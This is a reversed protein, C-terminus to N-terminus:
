RMVSDIKANNLGQLTATFSKIASIINDELPDFSDSDPVMDHMDMWEINERVSEVLDISPNFSPVASWFKSGDFVQSHGFNDILRYYRHPAVALLIDQPVHVLNAQVDLASAAIRYWDDWTRHNPHVLNYTGGIMGPKSLLGVFGIAADRSSLFQFYNLGDGVSIIPKGKRLRDIWEGDCRVQRLLPMGPGFTYSPKIIVVPFSLRHFADLLITDAAIKGMAYTSIGNLPMSESVSVGFYPFPPGYTMVSSCHIFMGVRDRFARIASQADEANYSIMDFVVDFSEQRMRFEFFERDLRDGFIVKVDSPPKDPHEGRNFLIVEHGHKLLESVIQRSINGTGGIVLVKM